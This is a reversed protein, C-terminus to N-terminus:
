SSDTSKFSINQIIHNVHLYIKRMRKHHIPAHHKTFYDAKNNQGKDWYVKIKNQSQQDRIWHYRMDWSKSRKQKIMENVFSAATSNDTKIPTPGQEHNLIELLRRIYIANQCNHFLGGTEAEAASAVVHKLYRCEVLVAGNIKNSKKEPRDGLYYYGAIRSKANPAVLYAADSDVHLIMDSAHYRIRAIPNSALYDLLMISKRKTDETPHAQSTSIESLAPLITADIARAYYLFSGVIQQIRKKEDDPLKPTNDIPALQPKRGYAPKTWEHPATIPKKPQPHKLKKLTKTVYNPMEIDVYGNDYNWNIKLGCYNTGSWDITIKYDQLAKILHNADAKSFYKVGFDDVCLCFITKRTKHKWFNPCIEDPIYGHPALRQRLLDYALRAAQKLGYMGRKIKCYIFGDTSVFNDTNYQKRVEDTIYKKHIRMFEPEEMITQLFHDKLDMTLFRAGKNSDSIVSNILLKTELLSAAPSATENEYELKDGGITMRVRHKEAKLPRYDCVFNAYTIKKHHPIDEKKIFEMTDTGTIRNGIGQM